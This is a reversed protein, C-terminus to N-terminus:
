TGAREIDRRVRTADPFQLIMLLVAVATALLAVPQGTILHVVCGLLGWAELLAAGLLTAVMIESPIQGADIEALAEQRRGAVRAALRPPLFFFAPIAAAGMAAVALLMLEAFGDSQEGGMDVLFTVAAFLAQGTILSGVILQASKVPVPGQSQHNM